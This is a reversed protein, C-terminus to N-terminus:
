SYSDSGPDSRTQTVKARIKYKHVWLSERLTHCYIYKLVKYIQNFLKIYLDSCNYTRKKWLFLVKPVDPGIHVLDVPPQPSALSVPLAAFGSSLWDLLLM